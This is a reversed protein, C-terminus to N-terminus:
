IPVRQSAAFRFREQVKADQGWTGADELALVCNLYAYSNVSGNPNKIVSTIQFFTDPNGAFFSSELLNHLDDIDGSNRDYLFTGGWGGYVNRHQPIGNMNIPSSKLTEIEPRPAFELLLGMQRLPGTPGVLSLSIDKGINFQDNAM